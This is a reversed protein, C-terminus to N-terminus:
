LIPAGFPANDFNQRDPGFGWAERATTTLQVGITSPRPLIDFETLVFVLRPDPAFTFVYTIPSMDMPDLVYVLGLDGFVDRLMRNINTVSPRMVLQYYRLRLVIRQQELTLQVSEPGSPAFTGNDFNEHFEGFGWAPGDTGAPPPALRIGLIRAWVQCGFANATRLDFVDRLWDIWFDRHNTDFWAQKSELLARLKTARNHQWLLGRLIDVSFDFAQITTM